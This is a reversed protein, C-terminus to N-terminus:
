NASGANTGEISEGGRYRFALMTIDDFQAADGVFADVDAKVRTCVEDMPLDGLTNLLQLLREEGYLENHANTAETVGDTYLFIEDGPQLQMQEQQYCKRKSAALMLGRVTKLYSFGEGKRRILPPNHGANVVSLCGNKLNVSGTWATVFMRTKNNELLQLNAQTYADDLPMGAEAYGKLLAKARMMFMAAPIGKGSVDAITLTLTNEDTFYFDYFDGGVEKAPFMCAFLDMERRNPYPPFVSPLASLQIQRAFELEQDIRKEAADILQRLAGVTTNIDDSLSSFEENSRVDVTVQLNGHTILNLAHNIKQINSVILKKILLYIHAFLAAFVIVEMFALIYVAVNRSFMAEEMPLVALIYYGEAKAYMCCSVTDYIRAEFRQKVPFTKNEDHGLAEITEGIHDANDSIIIGNEDCILVFGNQGIHRNHAAYQVQERIESQFRQADYGVQVFGHDSRVAAYKRSIDSNLSIPQYSQVYSEAGKLATVFEASQQGSTMDYGIFPEYTSAIIVGNEDVVNIETVQYLDALKSLSDGNLEDPLDREIQRTMRLLATDSAEMISKEVDAISKRLMEDATANSLQTQFRGTFLMTVTFAAVVCILLWRQFTQAIKENKGTSVTQRGSIRNVLWVAGMVSLGNAAIMPLACQQVVLFARQIDSTNTLFVILMHLVEATVGVALGHFWGPKRDDLLWARSAAGVIGALITGLTCALRTFEGVGWLTAFWREVGGIVGAILGAPWGFLLGAAVPAANRVNLMAGDAPIGFETALVALVGFGFGILTQKLWCPKEQWAQQKELHDFLVSLLVPLAAATLIRFLTM